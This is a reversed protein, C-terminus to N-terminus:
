MGEVVNMGLVDATSSVIGSGRIGVVYEHGASVAAVGGGDGVGVNGDGECKRLMSMDLLFLVRVVTVAGVM